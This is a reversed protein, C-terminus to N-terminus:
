NRSAMKGLEIRLAMCTPPNMKYFDQSMMWNMAAEMQESSWGGALIEKAAKSQRGIESSVAQRSPFRWNGLFFVSGIIQLHKQNSGVLKEEFYKIDDWVEEDPAEERKVDNSDVTGATPELSGGQESLSDEGGTIPENFILKNSDDMPDENESQNSPHNTRDAPDSKYSTYSKPEIHIQNLPHVVHRGGGAGPAGRDQMKPTIAVKFLNSAQSGDERFRATKEILGAKELITYGQRISRESLGTEEVLKKTSPWCSGGNNAHFWLWTLLLQENPKLGKMLYAPFIGFTGKELTM